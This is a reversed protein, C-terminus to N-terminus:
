TNDNNINLLIKNVVEIFKEETMAPIVDGEMLVCHDIYWTDAYCNSNDKFIESLNDM